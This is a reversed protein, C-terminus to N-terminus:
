NTVKQSNSGSGIEITTFMDHVLYENILDTVNSEGEKKPNYSNIKFPVVLISNILQFIHFLLLISFHFNIM